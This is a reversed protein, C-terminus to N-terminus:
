ADVGGFVGDQEGFGGQVRPGITFLHGLDHELGEVNWCDVDGHLGDEAEIGGSPGGAEDDVGAVADGM